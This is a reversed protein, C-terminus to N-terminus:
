KRKENLRVEIETLEKILNSHAAKLTEESLEQKYYRKKLRGIMSKIQKEKKKLSSIELSKEYLTWITGISLFVVAASVTMVIVPSTYADVWIRFLHSLGILNIGLALTFIAVSIGKEGLLRGFYFLLYTTITLGLFAIFSVFDAIDYTLVM